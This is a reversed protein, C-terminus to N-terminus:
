YIQFTMQGQGDRQELGCIDLSLVYAASLSSRARGLQVASGTLNSPSVTSNHTHQVHLQSQPAHITDPSLPQIPRYVEATSYLCTFDIQTSLSLRCVKFATEFNSLRRERRLVM